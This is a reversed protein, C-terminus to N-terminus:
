SKIAGCHDCQYDPYPHNGMPAWQHTGHLKMCLKARETCLETIQQRLQIILLQHDAMTKDLHKMMEDFTIRSSFKAAGTCSHVPPIPCVVLVGGCNGTLNRCRGEQERTVPCRLCKSTPPTM